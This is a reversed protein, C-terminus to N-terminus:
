ESDSALTKKMKKYTDEDIDGSAFRQRLIELADVDSEPSDNSGCAGCGADSESSATCSGKGFLFKIMVLVIIIGVVWFAWIM